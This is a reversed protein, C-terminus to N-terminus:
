GDIRFRGQLRPLVSSFVLGLVIGSIGQVCNPLVAGVAGAWGYVFGEFVFYGLVMFAEAVVFSLGNRLYAKNQAMRGVIAGMCAKILFTPLVYIMYGGLLDALASGVGAILAAYPGMLLASLFIMGDGLHVYGNTIPVPVKFFFTALMVLAALVGGLALKRTKVNQM